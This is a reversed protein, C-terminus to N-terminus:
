PADDAIIHRPIIQSLLLSAADFDNLTHLPVEAARHAITVDM